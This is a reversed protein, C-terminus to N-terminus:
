DFMASVTPMIPASELELTTRMRFVSAAERRQAYFFDLTYRDGDVLGLRDAEIFQEDTLAVGGLDMVLEGNIFIWVGDGGQFELFQAWCEKYEFDARIHYTFYNNHAQGEDGLMRGDIPHFEDELLSFVGSGDRALIITHAASQNVGPVDRFWEAFSASSQVGGMGPFGQSGANDNVPACAAGTRGFMSPAIPRGANDRWETMVKYGTAKFVPKADETMGIEVGGAYHGFGGAPVAEFDVHAQRFDRVLGTLKLEDAGLADQTLLTLPALLLAAMTLRRHTRRNPLSARMRREEITGYSAPRAGASSAV